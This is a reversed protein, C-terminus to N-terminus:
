FPFLFSGSIDNTCSNKEDNMVINMNSIYINEIM